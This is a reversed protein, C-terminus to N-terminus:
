HALSHISYTLCDILQRMQQVQLNQARYIDNIIIIIIISVFKYLALTGCTALLDSAHQGSLGISRVTENRIVCSQRRHDQLKSSEVLLWELSIKM